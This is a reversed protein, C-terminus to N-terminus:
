TYSILVLINKKNKTTTTTKTRSLYIKGQCVHKKPPQRANPYIHYRLKSRKQIQIDHLVQNQTVTLQLEEKFCALTDYKLIVTFGNDMMKSPITPLLHYVHPFM